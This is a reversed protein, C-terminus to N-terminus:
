IYVAYLSQYPQTSTSHAAPTLRSYLSRTHYMMTCWHKHCFSRVGLNHPLPSWTIKHLKPPNSESLRWVWLIGLWRSQSPTPMIFEKSSDRALCPSALVEPIQRQHETRIAFKQLGHILRLHRLSPLKHSDVGNTRTKECSPSARLSGPSMKPTRRSGYRPHTASHLPETSLFALPMEANNTDWEFELHCSGSSSIQWFDAPPLQFSETKCWQGSCPSLSPTNASNCTVFQPIHTFSFAITSYNLFPAQLYVPM